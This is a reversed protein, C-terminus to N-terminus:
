SNIQTGWKGILSGRCVSGGGADAACADGADAACADGADAACEGGGGGGCAVCAGDAEVTAVARVRMEEVRVEEEM